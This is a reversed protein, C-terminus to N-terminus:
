VGTTAVPVPEDGSPVAGAAQASLRFRRRAVLVILILVGIAGWGLLYWPVSNFPSPVKYISAWIAGAQIALGVVATGVLPVPNVKGWLGRLSTVAVAAYVVALTLGGYGAEWFFFPLYEPGGGTDFVGHSLRVWLVEVVAIAMLAVIATVATGYRASVRALAGPIRRDTALAFILRTAHGSPGVGV